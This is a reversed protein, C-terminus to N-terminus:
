DDFDSDSDQQGECEEFSWDRKPDGFNYHTPQLLPCCFLLVLPLSLPVRWPCPQSMPNPAHDASPVSQRAALSVAARATREASCHSRTHADVKHAATSSHLRKGLVKENLM